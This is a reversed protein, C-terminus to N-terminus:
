SRTGLNYCQSAKPVAKQVGAASVVRTLQVVHEATKDGGDEFINRVNHSAEVVLIAHEPFVSRM